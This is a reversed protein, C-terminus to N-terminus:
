EGGLEYREFREIVIKEGIKQVLATLLDSMTQSPAKIFPQALLEEVTAPRMSAIQLAVEHAFNRFEPNRAVFDTECNVEVMVGIKNNHVYTEIVGDSATRDAKKAMVSAGKAQLISIAKEMDGAAEVLARKADMLGIGTRQRLEKVQSATIEQNM